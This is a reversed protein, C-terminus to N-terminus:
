LEYSIPLGKFVLVMGDSLIVSVSNTFPNINVREVIQGTKKPQGKEDVGNQIEGGVAFSVMELPKYIAVSKIKKIM